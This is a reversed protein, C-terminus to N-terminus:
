MVDTDIMQCVQKLTYIDNGTNDPFNLRSKLHDKMMEVFHGRNYDYATGIATTRPSAVYEFLNAIHGATESDIKDLIEQLRGAVKDVLPDVVAARNARLEDNDKAFCINYLEGDVQTYHISNPYADVTHAVKGDPGYVKIIFHQESNETCHLLVGHFKNHSKFRNYNFRKALVSKVVAKTVDDVKNGPTFYM